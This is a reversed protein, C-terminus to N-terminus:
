WSTPRSVQACDRASCRPYSACRFKPVRRVWGISRFWTDPRADKQMDEDTFVQKVAQTAVARWTRAKEETYGLGELVRLRLTKNPLTVWGLEPVSSFTLQM